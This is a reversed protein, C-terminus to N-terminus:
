VEQCSYEMVVQYTLEEMVQHCPEEEEEQFPEVVEEQNELEEKVVLFPPEEKVEQHLFAEVQVQHVELAEPYSAFAEEQLFAQNGM